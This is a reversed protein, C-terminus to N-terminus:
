NGLSREFQCIVNQRRFINVNKSHSQNTVTVINECERWSVNLCEFCSSFTCCAFSHVPTPITTREIAVYFSIFLLRYANNSNNDWHRYMNWLHSLWLNLSHGICICLGVASVYYFHYRRHCKVNYMTCSRELWVIRDLWKANKMQIWKQTRDNTRRDAHLKLNANCHFRYPKTENPQWLISSMFICLIIDDNSTLSCRSSSFFNSVWQSRRKGKSVNCLIRDTQRQTHQVRWKASRVEYECWGIINSRQHLEMNPQPFFTTMVALLALLSLTQLLSLRVLYWTSRM